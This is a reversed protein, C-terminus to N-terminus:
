LRSAAVVVGEREAESEVWAWAWVWAWVWEGEGTVERRGREEDEVEIVLEWEVVWVGVAAAVAREVRLGIDVTDMVAAEREGLTRGTGTTPVDIAERRAQMMRLRGATQRGDTQRDLSVSRISVFLGLPQSEIDV